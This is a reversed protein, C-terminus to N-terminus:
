KNKIFFAYYFIFFWVIQCPLFGALGLLVGTIAHGTGHAEPNERAKMFGIAGLLAAVPGLLLGLGPLLAGFGCYYGALACPNKYPVVHSVAGGGGKRPREEEEEYEEDEQDRRRKAM